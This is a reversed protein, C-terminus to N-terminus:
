PQSFKPSSQLGLYQVFLIKRIVPLNEFWGTFFNIRGPGFEARIESKGKAHLCVKGGGVQGLRQGAGAWEQEFGRGVTNYGGNGHAFAQGCLWASLVVFPPAM